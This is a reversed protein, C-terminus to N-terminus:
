LEDDMASSSRLSARSKHRPKRPSLFGGKRKATAQSTVQRYAQVDSWVTAPLCNAEQEAKAYLVPSSCIAQVCIQKLSKVRQRREAGLQLFGDMMQQEKSDLAASLLHYTHLDRTQLEQITTYFIGFVDLSTMPTPSEVISGMADFLGGEDELPDFYAGEATPLMANLEEEGNGEEEITFSDKEAADDEYLDTLFEMADGSEDLALRSDDNRKRKAPLVPSDGRVSDERKRKSSTEEGDEDKDSVEMEQEESFAEEGDHSSWMRTAQPPTSEQVTSLLSCFGAVFVKELLSSKMFRNIVLDSHDYFLSFVLDLQEHQALCQVTITPNYYLAHAVVSLGWVLVHGKNEIPRISPLQRVVLQLFRDVEGDISGPYEKSHEFFEGVMRCYARVIITNVFDPQHTALVTHDSLCVEDTSTSALSCAQYYHDIYRKESLFQATGNAIFNGMPMSLEDLWDVMEYQNTILECLPIFLSFLDEPTPVVHFTLYSLIRMLEEVFEVINDGPGTFLTHLWPVLLATVAAVQQQFEVSDDHEKPRVNFLSDLVGSLASLCGVALMASNDDELARSAVRSFADTLHKCLVVAYQTLQQLNLHSIISNLAPILEDNGVAEIIKIITELIWPFATMFASSSETEFVLQSIAMAAYFQVTIADDKMCVLMVQTAEAVVAEIDSTFHAIGLFVRSVGHVAYCARARLLTDATQDRAIPLVHEALIRAASAASDEKFYIYGLISLAADKQLMDASRLGLEVRALIKEFVVDDHLVDSLLNKAVSAANSFMNDMDYEQRLYDLPQEYFLQLHVPSLQCMSVLDDILRDAQGELMMARTDVVPQSLKWQKSCYDHLCRLCIKTLAQMREDAGLRDAQKRARRNMYRTLVIWGYRKCKWWALQAASLDDDAPCVDWREFPLTADVLASIQDNWGRQQEASQEAISGGMRSLAWYSKLLYQIHTTHQELKAKDEMLRTFLKLLVPLVHEVIELKVSNFATRYQFHKNLNYLVALAEELLLGDVPSQQRVSDADSESRRHVVKEKGKTQGGSGVSAASRLIITMARDLFTKCPSAAHCDDEWARQVCGHLITRWPEARAGQGASAAAPAPAFLADMLGERIAQKDEAPMTPEHWRTRIHDQLANAVVLKLPLPLAQDPASSSLEEELAHLLVRVLDRGFHARTQVQRLQQAPDNGNLRQLIDKEGETAVWEKAAATDSEEM